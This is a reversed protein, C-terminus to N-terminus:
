EIDCQWNWGSNNDWHESGDKFCFNIERDASAHISVAFEGDITREMPITACDKWGDFGYHLYVEPTGSNKLLGHYRLHVKGGSKVPMPEISISSDGYRKSM